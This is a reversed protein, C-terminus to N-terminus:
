DPLVGHQCLNEILAPAPSRAFTRTLHSADIRTVPGSIIPDCIPVHPCVLRDLDVAWVNSREEDLSRYIRELDTSEPDVGYRRAELVEADALCVLPDCGSAPLSIPEHVVVGRGAPGLSDVADATARKLPLRQEPSGCKVRGADRGRCELIHGPLEYALAMGAFMDPELM